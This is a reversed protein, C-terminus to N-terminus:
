FRSGPQRLFEEEEPTSARGLVENRHPFRGFRRIVEYHSHAWPLPAALGQAALQEFLRVSETQDALSESHEFPLYVFWREILPLSHDGGTEVLRRAHSLAAGDGEFARPTDRHINRTFQDLVVILALMGRPTRTWGDLEGRLAADPLAGFRERILADTAGSKRFWFDRPAGQGPSGPAGFWFDLVDTPRM